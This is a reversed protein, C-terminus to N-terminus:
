TSSGRVEQIVVANCIITKANTTEELTLSLKFYQM